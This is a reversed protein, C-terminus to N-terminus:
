RAILPRMPWFRRRQRSRRHSRPSTPRRRKRRWFCAKWGHKPPTPPGRGLADYAAACSAYLGLARAVDGTRAALDAELGCCSRKRWRLWRLASSVSRSSAPARARSGDPPLPRSQGPEALAQQRRRLPAGRRGWTSRRRSTARASARVRRPRAHARRPELRIPRASRGSRRAAESPAAVAAEYAAKADVATENANAAGPRALRADAGGGARTQRGHARCSGRRAESCCGRAAVHRGPIARRCARAGVARRGRAGPRRAAPWRRPEGSRRRACLRRGAPPRARPYLFWHRGVKPAKPRVDGRRDHRRAEALSRSQSRRAWDGLTGRAIFAALSSDHSSNVSWRRRKTTAGRISCTARLSPARTRRPRQQRHGRGEAGFHARSRGTSVVTQGDLRRVIGRLKGPRGKSRAM